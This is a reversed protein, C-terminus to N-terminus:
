QNQQMKSLPSSTPMIVTETTTRMKIVTALLAVSVASSYLDVLFTVNLKAHTTQADLVLKYKGGSLVLMM